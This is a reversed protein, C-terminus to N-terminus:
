KPPNIIVIHLLQAVWLSFMVEKSGFGGCVRTFDEYM